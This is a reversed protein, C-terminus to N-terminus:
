PELLSLANFTVLLVRAVFGVEHQYPYSAQTNVLKRCRGYRESPWRPPPLKTGLTRISSFRYVDPGMVCVNSSMRELITNIVVNLDARPVTLHELPLLVV